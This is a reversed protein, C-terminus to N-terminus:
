FPRAPFGQCRGCHGKISEQPVKKHFRKTKLMAEQEPIMMFACEVLIAPYQTPRNVAFNGYYWGIDNLGLSRAMSHQVARALAASHPHYYYTSVGNNVFPNTGDPLANNHISIFIDAKERVAIKPRDYLPLSTDGSRTLIVEAGERRLDKRLQKAILLNAEKETLGTPGVAGDDLSHGPDIVFRIDYLDSTHSPFKRIDFHLKNGVYYGDYGWIRDSTLYIKLGYVGPESQFWVIHDILSDRSDYRIWDTDSDAGYIFLTISKEDINEVIRFPHKASTSVEISVRDDLSRSRISSIYSHPPITGPPLIVAATDPIWGYQYESLKLKLWKGDKGALEARIGAPQHIYIYGKRPGSRIVTISDTLEVVTHINQPLVRIARSTDVKVPVFTAMNRFSLAKFRFDRDNRLMEIMQNLSPPYIHYILRLSDDDIDPVDFSGEYIGRILLSDPVGPLLEGADDFVSRGWYYNQPLAEKMPITDGTNEILCFANCYPTGSFSVDVRDGAMVWLPSSPKFSGPSLYLSDYSYDPLEPLYVTLTLTDTISDKVARLFFDFIGPHMPLFALWGGGRHVDIPNDNISLISGPEVSGFIFTSDVAAINQDPKPYVVNLNLPGAASTAAIAFIL